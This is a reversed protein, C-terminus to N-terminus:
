SHVWVELGEPSWDYVQKAIRPPLNVCGHSMRHGFNNHWYAGHFAINPAFWTNWPVDKTCYSAGEFCGMDQKATHAFVRFHGLPTDTGPLGTSTAWADVLKENEFLYTRQESIDVEIRRFLTTTEFPTSTVPLEFAAKGDGLDTAFASAIGTTDGLVRGDKGDVLTRLVEGKSDVVKTADVVDRNVLDPLTAVMGQIASQDATIELEGDVQDIHLWKAAVEPAVPVTREDGVYFGIEALMGNLNEVTAAAKEDTIAPIVETPDGSFSFTTAGEDSAATFAEALDSVSIGTGSAAPTATYAASAPDFAVVADVPDIYSSPVAARLAREAATPDLSVEAGIPDGMWSGLNWLPRDAFAQEALAGADVSAGLDTGTLTAGAGAGTLEVETSALRSSIAASAMGPTMGGVPVGAVTTGPAILILSAGAAALALAGAGLGIWLGLRRKRPAPEAPAWEVPHGDHPPLADDVFSSPIADTGPGSILDTM